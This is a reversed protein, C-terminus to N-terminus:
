EAFPIYTHFITGRGIEPKEVRIFGGHDMIIKKSLALGLGTGGKKRTYFPHFIKPVETDPIGVGTDRFSVVAWRKIRKNQIVQEKSPRTMIDLAGGRPMAELANQIINLFVQVLRGSDGAIKPLSPDYFRHLTIRATALSQKMIDVAKEVAEHVNISQLLPKRGITLYTRLVADLRETERIIRDIYEEDTEDGSVPLRKRGNREALRKRLLQAAGKIGGLPNKVEHAISGLLYVLSDFSLDEREAISTNERVSLIAGGCSDEMIIPAIDIDVRVFGQMRIEIDKASFSRLEKMSKRALTALTRTGPYLSTLRKGVVEQRGKGFFEEGTRNIFTIVCERNLLMISERLSHVITELDGYKEKQMGKSKIM